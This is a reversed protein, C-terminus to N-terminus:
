NTCVTFIGKQENKILYFELNEQYLHELIGSEDEPWPRPPAPWLNDQALNQVRTADLQLKPLNKM